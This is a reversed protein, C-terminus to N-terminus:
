QIGGGGIPANRIKEMEKQLKEMENQLKMTEILEKMESVPLEGRKAKEQKELFPSVELMSPGFKPEQSEANTICLVGDDVFYVLGLQKLVLQLTRRLPVGDLDITIPSTMTREAEQLAQPYVYIPIAAGSQGATAQKIYKLVDELPTDNPFNMPLPEELKALLAVSKQDKATKGGPDPAPAPSSIPKSEKKPLRAQALWLEAEALYAKSEPVRASEGAESLHSENVKRALTQMREAHEAAAKTKGAPDAALAQQAEMLM